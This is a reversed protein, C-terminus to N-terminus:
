GTHVSRRSKRGDQDSFQSSQLVDHHLLNNVSLRLQTKKGLTWLGYVDLIRSVGTYSRLGATVQVNSVIKLNFFSAFHNSSM